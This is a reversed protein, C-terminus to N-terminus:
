LLGKALMQWKLGKMAALDGSSHSSPICFKALIRLTQTLAPSPQQLHPSKDGCTATAPRRSPSHRCFKFPQMKKHLKLTDKSVIDLDGSHELILANCWQM